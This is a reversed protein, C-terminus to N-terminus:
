HYKQFKQRMISTRKRNTQKNKNGQKNELILSLLCSTVLPFSSCPPSVMIFSITQFFFRNKNLFLAWIVTMKLLIFEDSMLNKKVKKM